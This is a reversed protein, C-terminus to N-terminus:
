ESATSWEGSISRMMNDVIMDKKKRLNEGKEKLRKMQINLHIERDALDTERTENMLDKESIAKESLLIKNTEEKEKAYKERLDRLEHRLDKTEIDKGKLLRKGTKLKKNKRKLM